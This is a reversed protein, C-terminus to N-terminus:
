SGDPSGPPENTQRLDRWVEVVAYPGPEPEEVSFTKALAIGEAETAVLYWKNVAVDCSMGNCTLPSCNFNGYYGHYGFGVADYGILTFHAPLPEVALESPSLDLPVM